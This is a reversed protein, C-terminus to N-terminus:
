PGASPRVLMYCNRCGGLRLRPCSCDEALGAAEARESIALITRLDEDSLKSYDIGKDAPNRGNDPLYLSVKALSGSAPDVEVLQSAKGWGRDLLAEAARTRAAAPQHPDAMLEALVALADATYERALERVHAVDRPRGGPNGSQGPPFPRGRRRPAATIASNQAPM